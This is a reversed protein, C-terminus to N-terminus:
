FEGRSHARATEWDSQTPYRKGYWYVKHTKTDIIAWYGNGQYSEAM